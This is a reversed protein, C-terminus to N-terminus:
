DTQGSGRHAREMLPRVLFIGALYLAPLVAHGIFGVSGWFRLTADVRLLQFAMGLYCFMGMRLSWGVWDYLEQGQGPFFYLFFINLM